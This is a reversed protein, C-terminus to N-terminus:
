IEEDTIGLNDVDLDDDPDVFGVSEIQDDEDLEIGFDELRDENEM